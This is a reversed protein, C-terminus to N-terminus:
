AKRNAFENELMVDFYYLTEAESKGSALMECAKDALMCYTDANKNPRAESIKRAVYGFARCFGSSSLSLIKNDAESIRACDNLAISFDYYASVACGCFAKGFEKIKDLAKM